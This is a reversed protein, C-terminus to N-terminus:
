QNNTWKLFEEAFERAKKLEENYIPGEQSKVRVTLLKPYTNEIKSANKIRKLFRKGFGQIKDTPLAHTLFGTGFRITVGKEMLIKNLKKLWKKSAPDGRFMRIAGGLVLIDPSDNAILVPSVEKVHGIKVESKEPFENKLFEALFKGNGFRTDHLIWAKLTM